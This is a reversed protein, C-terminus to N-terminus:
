VRAPRTPTSSRRAKRRGRKVLEPQTTELWAQIAAEDREVAKKRPKQPSYGLARMLKRVHDPHYEIHLVRQCVDAIRKSTWRDTTFGWATPSLKIAELLKQEDETTISRGPGPHPKANLADVGNAQWTAHWKSISAQSVELERAIAAQSLENAKFLEAAKHRREELQPKTLRSPKWPM